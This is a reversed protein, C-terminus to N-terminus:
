RASRRLRPTSPSRHRSRRNEARGRLIQPCWRRRRRRRPRYGRRTTRVSSFAPYGGRGRRRQAFTRSRRPVASVASFARSRWTAEAGGAGRRSRGLVGLSRRSRRSRELVGLLRRAGQAEARVDSVASPGGLVSSFALYGGRGRRRQAFTRSRRPVASVASFARSRWTAEAGGAGRRPRGLGGLSRRSRRAFPRSRWTAEAGGAGRRSRGLLDLVGLSRRSRRSRWTPEAGEAGRRSVVRSWRSIACLPCAFGRRRV